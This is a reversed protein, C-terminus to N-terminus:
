EMGWKAFMNGINLGTGVKFTGVDVGTGIDFQRRNEGLQDDFQRNQNTVRQQDIDIQGLGLKEQTQRNAEAIGFGRSKGWVDGAIRAQEQNLNQQDIARKIAAGQADFQSQYGKFGEGANFTQTDYLAKQRKWLDDQGYQNETAQSQQGLIANKYADSYRGMQGQQFASAAQSAGIQDARDREAKALMIDRNGSLINKAAMDRASQEMGQQMGGGMRGMAAFRQGTAANQAALQNGQVERLQNKMASVVNPNMTEPNALM